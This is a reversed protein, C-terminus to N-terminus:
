GARRSEVDLKAMLMSPTAAGYEAMTDQVFKADDIISADVDFIHIGERREFTDINILARTVARIDSMMQTM